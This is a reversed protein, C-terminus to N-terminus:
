KRTSIQTIKHNALCNRIAKNAGEEIRGIAVNYYRASVGYSFVMAISLGIELIAITIATIVIVSTTSILYPSSFGQLPLEPL